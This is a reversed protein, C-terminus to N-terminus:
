KYGYIEKAEVIKGYSLDSRYRDIWECAQVKDTISMSYYGGEFLRYARDGYKLKDSAYEISRNIIGYEDMWLPSSKVYNKNKFITFM